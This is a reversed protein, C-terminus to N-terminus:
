PAPWKPHRGFFAVLREEASSGDPVPVPPGFMDPPPRAGGPRRAHDYALRCLGADLNAPVGSARALDWTHVLVDSTLMPLLGDVGGPFGPVPTSGAGPVALASAIAAATVAWRAVPDSKPRAPKAGLPRLLLVDHFGIVHELVGRADWEPCPSPRDWGSGVREVVRGFQDCALRHHGVAEDFSPGV